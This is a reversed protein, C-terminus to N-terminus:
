LELRRAQASDIRGQPDYKRRVAKFEELRPYMRAFDQPTTFADKALYIRGGNRIVYANM